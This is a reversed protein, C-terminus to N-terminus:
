LTENLVSRVRALCHLAFLIDSAGERDMDAGTSIVSGKSGGDNGGIARAFEAPTSWAYSNAAVGVHGGGTVGGGVLQQECNGSGGGDGGRRRRM